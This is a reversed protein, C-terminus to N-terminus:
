AKTGYHLISSPSSLHCCVFTEVDYFIRAFAEETVTIVDSLGQNIKLIHQGHEDFNLVINSMLNGSQCDLGFHRQFHVWPLELAEPLDIIEEAQAVKVVPIIAWSTEM